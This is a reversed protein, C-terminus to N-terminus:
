SSRHGAIVGLGIDTPQSCGKDRFRLARRIAPPIVRSRRGISLPEGNDGDIVAVVTCDCAIRRSTEATVDAEQSEIAMDIARLILAGQEAPFRAKIVLSGDEDHFYNLERRDHVENANDCDQL